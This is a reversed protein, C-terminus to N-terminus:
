LFPSVTQTLNEWDINEFFAHDLIAKVGGQKKSGLRDEKKLVLLKEIFDKANVNPFDEPFTYRLTVIRRFILHESVDSFPKDNTLCQFM